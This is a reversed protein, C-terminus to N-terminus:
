DEKSVGYLLIDEGAAAHEVTLIEESVKGETLLIENEITAPKINCFLTENDVAAYEVTITEDAINGNIILTEGDVSAGISTYSIKVPDTGIYNDAEATVLINHTGPAALDSIKEL